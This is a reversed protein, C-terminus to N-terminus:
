GIWVMMGVGEEKARQTVRKLERFPGLYYGLDYESRLDLQDWAEEKSLAEYRRPDLEVCVVDPREREIVLRVLDISEKAVHATGVLVYRRGDQELLRVESPYEAPGPASEALLAATELAAPDPLGAAPLAPDNM